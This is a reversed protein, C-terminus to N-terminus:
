FPYLSEAICSWLKTGRLADLKNAFLEDNVQTHQIKAKYIRFYYHIMANVKSFLLLLNILFSRFDYIFM